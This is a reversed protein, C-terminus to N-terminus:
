RGWHLLLMTTLVVAVLGILLPGAVRRTLALPSTGTLSASMLTVASVPSMTRGAAASVSVVAGVQLPDVSLNAAPVVFFQFLSQTAAMGSGSIWAFGLPLMAAAPLLLSPHVTAVQGIVAALGILEVGRGFCQAAVILSIIHTFAYGAGEFFARVSGSASRWTTLMALVAGFLMTAGILRSDFAADTEPTVLWERPVRLLQFPRGILLLLMIPVLPVAAKFPNLRFKDPAPAPLADTQGKALGAEARLSILWFVATAVGLQVLLLPWIRQICEASEVGMATSVTRLEPAGPNLLEGGISSGLLLASGVTTPSLRATTLLPVLVTGVAVATSTQSIVPL